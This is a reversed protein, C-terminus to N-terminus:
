AYAMHSPEASIILKYLHILLLSVKIYHKVIKFVRSLWSGNNVAEKLYFMTYALLYANLDIEHTLLAYPTM